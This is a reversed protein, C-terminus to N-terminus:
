NTNTEHGGEQDERALELGMRRPNITRFQLRRGELAGLSPRMPTTGILNGMAGMEIGGEGSGIGQAHLPFREEGLSATDYVRMQQPRNIQTLSTFVRHGMATLHPMRVTGRRKVYWFLAALGALLMIMLGSYVYHHDHFGFSLQNQKLQRTDQALSNLIAAVNVTENPKLAKLQATQQLLRILEQHIQDEELLTGHAELFQLTDVEFKPAPNMEITGQQQIQFRLPITYKGIIATCHRPLHLKTNGILPIDAQAQLPEITNRLNLCSVLANTPMVSSVVWEEDSVAQLITENGPYLKVACPIKFPEETVLRGSLIQHLCKQEVTETPIRQAPCILPKSRLCNSHDFTHGLDLFQARDPTM